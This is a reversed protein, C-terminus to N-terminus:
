VNKVYHYEKQRIIKTALTLALVGFRGRHLAIKEHRKEQKV